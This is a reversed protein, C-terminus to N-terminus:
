NAPGITIAAHDIIQGSQYWTNDYYTDDNIAVSITGNAPATWVTEGGVPFISEVGDDSVFRAVLQGQFCGEINCPLEGASAALGNGEVNIWEADDSLRFKDKVTAAITVVNDTCVPILLQWGKGIDLYDFWTDLLPAICEGETLARPLGRLWTVWEETDPVGGMVQKCYELNKQSIQEIRDPYGLLTTEVDEVIRADVLIGDSREGQWQSMMAELSTQRSQRRDTTPMPAYDPPFYCQATWGEEAHWGVPPATPEVTKKGCAPLAAFIVAISLYPLSRQM